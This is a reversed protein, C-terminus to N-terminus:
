IIERLYQEMQGFKEVMAMNNIKKGIARMNLGILINISELDMLRIKWGIVRM